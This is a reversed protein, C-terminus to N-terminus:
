VGELWSQDGVRSFGKRLLNSMNRLRGNEDRGLIALSPTVIRGPAISGQIRRRYRKHFRSTSRFLYIANVM